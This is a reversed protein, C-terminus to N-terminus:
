LLLSQPPQSSPVCSIFALIGAEWRKNKNYMWNKKFFYSTYYFLLIYYFVAYLFNQSNPYSNQWTSPDLSNTFIGYNNRKGMEGTKDENEM